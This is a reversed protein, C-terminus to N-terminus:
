EVGRVKCRALDITRLEEVYAAMVAEALPQPAVGLEELTSVRVPAGEGRINLGLHILTSVPSVTAISVSLKGEGVFLDDGSRRLGAAGLARLQEAVITVLLRQRLVAKELDRDFHEVLFHLMRPSFITAGDRVDALDVLDDIGVRCPGIFAVICDGPAEGRRYAWHSRLQEGTYEIEDTLFKVQM